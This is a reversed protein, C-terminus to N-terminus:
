GEKKERSQDEDGELVALAIRLARVVRRMTEQKAQMQSFVEQSKNKAVEAEFGLQDIQRKLDLIMKDKAGVVSSSETKVIELRHELERERVRIKRFNNELRGELEEIKNKQSSLERTKAQLQAKVIKKEEEFNRIEEKHKLEASEIRSLLEDSSDKLSQTASLLRENERRVKELESELDSIRKQAFRLTEHQRLNMDVVAGKSQSKTPPPTDVLMTKDNAAVDNKAPAPKEALKPKESKNPNAASNDQWKPPMNKPNSELSLDIPEINVKSIEFPPPTSQSFDRAANGDASSLDVDQDTPDYLSDILEEAPPKNKKSM